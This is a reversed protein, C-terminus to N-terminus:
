HKNKVVKLFCPLIDEDHEVYHSDAYKTRVHRAKCVFVCLYKAQPSRHRAYAKAVDFRQSFFHGKSAKLRLLGHNLISWTQCEQNTCWESAPNPKDSKDAMRATVCGCHGTGHFYETSTWEDADRSHSELEQYSVNYTRTRKSSHLLSVLDGELIM